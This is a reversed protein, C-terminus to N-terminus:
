PQPLESAAQDGIVNLAKWGVLMKLRSEPKEKEQRREQKGNEGCLEGDGGASAATTQPRAPSSQRVDAFGAPTVITLTSFFPITQAQPVM